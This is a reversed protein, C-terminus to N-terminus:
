VVPVPADKSVKNQEQELLAWAMKVYEITRDNGLVGAGMKNMVYTFTVKRDCDMVEWSGGYGGWTCVKGTPLWPVGQITEPGSICYGIGFNIPIFIIHDQGASQQRFIQDITSQKLYQKGDVSGGNSICSLIKNIGRANTHGNVGMMDAERWWAASSEPVELTPNPFTKM